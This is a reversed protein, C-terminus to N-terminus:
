KFKNDHVPDQEECVAYRPNNVLINFLAHNQLIKLANYQIQYTIRNIVFNVEFLQGDDSYIVDELGEIIKFYIYTDDCTLIKASIIGSNAARGLPKVILGDFERGKIAKSYMLCKQSSFNKNINYMKISIICM